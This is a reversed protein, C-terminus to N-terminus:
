ITPTNLIMEDYKLITEFGRDNMYTTFEVEERNNTVMVFDGGWAGLSKVEGWYNKFLTNKVREIKLVQSVILEHELMCKEFENLDKAQVFSDSIHSIEEVIKSKDIALNKYYAIANRSNMKENLHVFYINETFNPSFSVKEVIPNADNRTYFIAEQHEACAIDYGSGGFTKELLRYPNIDAWKAMFYVLTSSSGLGWNNPFELHANITIDNKTLLFSPNLDKCIRLMKVLTEAEKAAPQIVTLDRISIKTSLWVEQQANYANWFIFNNEFNNISELIEFEQGFKCPLALAKAGDLVFYEGSFLLKGNGKVSTHLFNKEIATQV